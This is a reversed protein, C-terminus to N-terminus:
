TNEPSSELARLSAVNSELFAAFDSPIERQWNPWSDVVYPAALLATELPFITELEERTLIGLQWSRYGSELVRLLSIYAASVCLVEESTMEARRKGEFIVQAWPKLNDSTAVAMSWAATEKALERLADARAMATSHRVQVALYIVSGFVVIAGLVEGIAGIMTWNM